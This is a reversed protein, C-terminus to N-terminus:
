EQNKKTTINKLVNIENKTLKSVDPTEVNFKIIYNGLLGNKKVFGMNKINFSLKNLYKPSNIEANYSKDFITDIRIKENKFLVKDLTTDVEHIIDGDDLIIRDNNILIKINISLDGILVSTESRGSIVNTIRTVDENGMKSLKITIYYSGDKKWIGIYKERLNIKLNLTKTIRSQKMDPSVESKEYSIEIPDSKVLDKIDIEKTININLYETNSRTQGFRSGAFGSRKYSTEKFGNSMDNVWEEFMSTNFKPGNLTDDYKSRKVPDGIVSYAEAVQKFKDEAKKDGSNIDPHYKKSLRRYSKKIDETTATSSVELIKYYNEL